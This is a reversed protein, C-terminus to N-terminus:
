GVVLLSRRVKNMSGKEHRDAECTEYGLSQPLVMEKNSLASRDGGRLPVNPLARSIEM